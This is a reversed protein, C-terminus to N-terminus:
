FPKIRPPKDVARLPKNDQHTGHVVKRFTFQQDEYIGFDGDQSDVVNCQESDAFDVSEAGDNKM